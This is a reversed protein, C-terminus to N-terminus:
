KIGFAKFIEKESKVDDLISIIKGKEDILIAIRGTNTTVYSTMCRDVLNKTVYIDIKKNTNSVLSLCLTTWWPNGIFRNWWHITTKENQIEDPTMHICDKNYLAIDNEKYIDSDTASLIYHNVTMYMAARDYNEELKSFRQAPYINIVRKQGEDNIGGRHHMQNIHFDFDPYASINNNSDIVEIAHASAVLSTLVLAITSIKM